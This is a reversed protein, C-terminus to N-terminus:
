GDKFMGYWHRVTGKSMVNQSYVVCLECHIEVASINKAHLFRIVTSIKCSAPNDIAPCLM